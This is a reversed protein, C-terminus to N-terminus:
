TIMSLSINVWAIATQMLHFHVSIHHIANLMNLLLMDMINDLRCVNKM